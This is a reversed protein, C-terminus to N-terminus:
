ELYKIKKYDFFLKGIEQLDNVTQQGITWRKDKGPTFHKGTKKDIIDFVMTPRYYTGLNTKEIGELNYKGIEDEYKYVRDINRYKIIGPKKRSIVYYISLWVDM